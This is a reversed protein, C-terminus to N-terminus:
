GGTGRGEPGDNLLYTKGVAELFCIPIVGVGYSERGDHQRCSPLLM